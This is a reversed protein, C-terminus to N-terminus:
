SEREALTVASPSLVLNTLSPAVRVPASGSRTHGRLQASIQYTGPMTGATFVGSATITGGTATWIVAAVIAVSDPLIALAAFQYSGDGPITM